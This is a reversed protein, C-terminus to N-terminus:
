LAPVNARRKTLAKLCEKIDKNDTLVVKIVDAGPVGIWLDLHEFDEPNTGLHQAIIVQDPDFYYNGFKKLRM